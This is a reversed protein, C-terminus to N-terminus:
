RKSYQGLHPKSSMEARMAAVDEQHQELAATASVIVTTQQSILGVLKEAHATKEAVRLEQLADNKTQTESLKRYLERIVVFAAVVVIGMGGQSLIKELLPDM